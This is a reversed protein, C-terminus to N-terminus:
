TAEGLDPSNNKIIQILDSWEAPSFRHRLVDRGPETITAYGNDDIDIDLIQGSLKM